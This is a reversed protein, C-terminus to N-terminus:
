DESTIASALDAIDIANLGCCGGVHAIGLDRWKPWYDSLNKGHQYSWIGSESDWEGGKNPYISIPTEVVSKTLKVLDTILDPNVCNFGISELNPINSVAEIADTILDGSWLHESTEATFSIWVPLKTDAFAESM